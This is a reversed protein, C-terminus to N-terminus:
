IVFYTHPHKTNLVYTRVIRISKLNETRKNQKLKKKWKYTHNIARKKKLTWIQDIVEGNIWENKKKM